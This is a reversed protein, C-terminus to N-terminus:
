NKVHEGFVLRLGDRVPEYEAENLWGRLRYMREISLARAQDLLCISPSRLGAIGVPFRPYLRPSRLAWEQSHDTTFPVVIVSEFRPRGALLPLGVVVAPRYGEQEHAGPHHEPFLATVVSGIRLRDAM